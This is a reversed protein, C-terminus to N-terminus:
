RPSHDQALSGRGTAFTHSRANESRMVPGRGSYEKPYYNYQNEFLSRMFAAHDPTYGLWGVDDTLSVVDSFTGYGSTVARM